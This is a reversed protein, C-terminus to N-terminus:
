RKCQQLLEDANDVAFQDDCRVAEARGDRLYAEAREFEGGEILREALSIMKTHLPEGPLLRAQDLSLEYYRVAAVRDATHDAVAETLMPEVRGLRTQEEYYDLLQQHLSDNLVDDGAGTANVMGLVLERVRDYIDPPVDSMDVSVVATLPAPGLAGFHLCLRGVPTWEV